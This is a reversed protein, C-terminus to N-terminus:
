VKLVVFLLITTPIVCQLKSMVQFDEAACRTGQFRKQGALGACRSLCVYRDGLRCHQQVVGGQDASGQFFWRVVFFM